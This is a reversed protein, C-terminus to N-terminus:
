FHMLVCRYDVLVYSIFFFFFFLFIELIYSKMLDKLITKHTCCVRFEEELADFYGGIRPSCWIILAVVVRGCGCFFSNGIKM